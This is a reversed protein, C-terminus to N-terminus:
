IYTFGICRFISSRTNYAYLLNMQVGIFVLYTIIIIVLLFLFLLLYPTNNSMSTKLPMSAIGPIPVFKFNHDFKREIIYYYYRLRTYFDVVVKSTINKM